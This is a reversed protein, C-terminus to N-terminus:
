HGRSMVIHLCSCLSISKQPACFLQNREAHNNHNQDRDNLGQLQQGRQKELQKQLGKQRSCLSILNGFSTSKSPM